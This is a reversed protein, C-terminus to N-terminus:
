TLLLTDRSHDTGNFVSPRCGFTKLIHLGAELLGVRCQLIYLSGNIAKGLSVATEEWLGTGM